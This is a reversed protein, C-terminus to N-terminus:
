LGGLCNVTNVPQNYYLQTKSFRQNVSVDYMATLVNNLRLIVM